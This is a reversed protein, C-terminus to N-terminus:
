EGSPEVNELEHGAFSHWATSEDDFEVDITNGAQSDAAVTGIRGEHKNGPKVRVKDGSKM